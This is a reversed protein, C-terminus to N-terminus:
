ESYSVEADFIILYPFTKMEKRQDMEKEKRRM